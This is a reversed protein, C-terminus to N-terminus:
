SNTLKEISKYSYRQRKYTLDVLLQLYKIVVTLIGFLGLFAASLFLLTTTWGESPTSLWYTVGVYVIMFVTMIMMLATMTVSFRYGATTFMLLIDIALERKYRFEQIDFKDEDVGKRQKSHYVMRCSELGCDVYVAKRYPVFKGMSSIRNVARRSLIRFSETNMQYSAHSFRELLNYFLRSSIKQKKDPSANVIDWGELSKKYIRMIESQDYDMGVTDFELVFDGIALDTGAAMALELGHFRSMHVVSIVMHKIEHAAKQMQISSGDESADDVCIIEAHDFNQDLVESLMNLFIGVQKEANHVYVVASIFNKEKNEM